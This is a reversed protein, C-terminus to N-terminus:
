EKLLYRLEDLQLKLLKQQDTTIRKELKEVLRFIVLVILALLTMVVAMSITLWLPTEIVLFLTFLTTLVAYIVLLWTLRSAILDRETRITAIHTAFYINMELRAAQSNTTRQNVLQFVTEPNEDALLRNVSVLTKYSWKAAFCLFTIVTACAGAIYIWERYEWVLEFFQNIMLIGQEEERWRTRVLFFAAPRPRVLSFGFYPIM